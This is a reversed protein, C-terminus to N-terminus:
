PAVQYMVYSTLQRVSDVTQFDRDLLQEFGAEMRQVDLERQQEMYTMWQYVSDATSEGHIKLASQVWVRTEEAQAQSYATLYDDLQQANLSSSAGFSLSWGQEGVDLRAQTFVLVTLVLSAAVPLWQAILPLARKRGPLSKRPPVTKVMASRDWDPVSQPQWRLLGAAVTKLLHLEQRCYQCHELHLTHRQLFEPTSTPDCHDAVIEPTNPCSM